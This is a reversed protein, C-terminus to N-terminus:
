KALVYERWIVPFTCLIIEETNEQREESEMVAPAMGLNEVILSHSSFAYAALVAATCWQKM